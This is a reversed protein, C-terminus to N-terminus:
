TSKLPMNQPLLNQAGGEKVLLDYLGAAEPPALAEDTM